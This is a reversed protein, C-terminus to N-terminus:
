IVVYGSVKLLNTYYFYKVMIDVMSDLYRAYLKPYFNTMNKSKKMSFIQYLQRSIKKRTCLQYLFFYIKIKMM